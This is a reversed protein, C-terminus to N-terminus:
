NIKEAFDDFNDCWYKRQPGPVAAIGGKAPKLLLKVNITYGKILHEKLTQTAWIRFQTGRLSKVRYGVSIIDDLNYFNTEYTKGDSATIRFKRIISNEKLEGEKFINKIHENITPVGKDFFLAMQKQTLWVTDEELHVELKPGEKTKYIVIEGKKFEQTSM